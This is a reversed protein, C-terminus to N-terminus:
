VENEVCLVIPFLTHIQTNFLNRRPVGSIIQEVWAIYIFEGTVFSAFATIFVSLDVATDILRWPISM